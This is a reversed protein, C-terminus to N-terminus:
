ASDRRALNMRRILLAGRRDEYLLDCAQAVAELQTTIARNRPAQKLEGLLGVAREEIAEGLQDLASRAANSFGHRQGRQVLLMLFRASSLAGDIAAQDPVADLDPQEGWGRPQGPRRSMPMLGLIGLALRDLLDQGLAGAATVRSQMIAEGWDSDRRFGFEGVLGEVANMYRGVCLSLRECDVLQGRRPEAALVIENSLRRVELILRTGVVGFETDRVLADNPKWSLARGIRLIQWPENLRNLLSLALYRSTMGYSESLSLYHVKAETVIDPTLESIRGGDLRRLGRLHTLVADIAAGLPAAITLIEAIEALDAIQLPRAFQAKVEARGKPKRLEDMLTRTWGAAAQQAQVAFEALAASNGDAILARLTAAREAIMAGAVLGLGRWWPEITSRPLLGPLRPDDERDYLFEEFGSCVLRRLTPVRNPRFEKMQPRLRALISDTPLTEAGMARQLEVARALAMAERSSLSELATQLKATEDSM